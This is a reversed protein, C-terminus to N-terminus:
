KQGVVMIHSSVGLLAPEREHEAVLALIRKQVNEDETFKTFDSMLWATGEVALTGDTSFGADRVEDALEDPHHFYATTFYGHEMSPNRHQGDRSTQEIMDLAKPILNAKRFQDIMAAYRGVGVAFVQGGSKLVRYAERLAQLRSERTTLHYLPGMLLVADASDDEYPLDLADGVRASALQGNAAALAQEIHLPMLDLLHVTYGQEALWIAYVGAAGGVDYVV